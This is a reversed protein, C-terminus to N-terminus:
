SPESESDTPEKAARILHEMARLIFQGAEAGDGTLLALRAYIQAQKRHYEPTPM